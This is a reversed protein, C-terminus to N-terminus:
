KWRELDAVCIHVDGGDGYLACLSVALLNKVAVSGAGPARM